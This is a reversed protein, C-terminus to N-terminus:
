IVDLQGDSIVLPILVPYPSVTGAGWVPIEWSPMAQSPNGGRGILHIPQVPFFAVPNVQAV